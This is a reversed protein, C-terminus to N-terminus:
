AEMLLGECTEGRASHRLDRQRDGGGARVGRRDAPQAAIDNDDITIKNRQCVKM